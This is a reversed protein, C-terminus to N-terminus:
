NGAVTSGRISLTATLEIRSAPLKNGNQIREFLMQAARCGIEFGMPHIASIAPRYMKSFPEECFGVIAIEEPIKIERAYLAQMMGSITLDSIAFIGDPPVSLDLLLHMLKEVEDPTEGSIVYKEDFPIGAVDLAAKYGKLRNKSILLNPNGICIAIRKKGTEILHKTARFAGDTDDVMVLDANFGEPVRDFFVIPLGMNTIERFHSLDKTTRSVSVLIGEVNGAMLIECSEIERQYEENSNLFVLKYGHKNVEYEIGQIVFPFFFCSIQPVILGIIKSTRHRLSVAVSNPRYHLAEALQTVAERTAPSIDPHGKLARSITTKSLNLMRAIDTITIPRIHM